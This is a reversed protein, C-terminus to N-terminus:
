LLYSKTHLESAAWRLGMARDNFIRGYSEGRDQISVNVGLKPNGPVIDAVTIIFQRLGSDVIETIEEPM